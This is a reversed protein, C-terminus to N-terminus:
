KMAWEFLKFFIVCTWFFVTLCLFALGIFKLISFKTDLNQHPSMMDYEADYGSHDIMM